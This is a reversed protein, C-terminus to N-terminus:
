IFWSGCVGLGCDEGSEAKLRALLVELFGSASSALMDSEMALLTQRVLGPEAQCLERASLHKLLASLPSYRGKRGFPISLLHRM